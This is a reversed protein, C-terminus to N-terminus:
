NENMKGDEGEEVYINLVYKFENYSRNCTHIVISQSKSKHKIVLLIQPKNERQEKCMCSSLCEHNDPKIKTQNQLRKSKSKHIFPNKVM